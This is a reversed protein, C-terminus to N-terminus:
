RFTWTYDINVRTEHAPKFSAQQAFNNDYLAYRTRLGLGKLTGTQVTYQLEFDWSDEKLDYGGLHPLDINTGKTYRTMFKLGQMLDKFDYDYRVGYVQEKPNLFDTSWGDIYILVEGGSLYPHATDGYNQMLSLTVTHNQHKFGLNATALTNDVKGARAEGNEGSNWLRIDTIIKNDLNLPMNNKFTVATQHYLDQAVAYYLGVQTNASLNYKGGLASLSNTQATKFRGNFAINTMKEYHTSDRHNVKTLYAAVLDLDQIQQSQLMGGLFTQPLLRSPSSFVVPTWPQLTGLKLETKQYKAKATIGLESATNSRERTVPDAPLLGSSLYKPNGELKISSLSLLDVGFGVTGPTYGSQINLIFGQAWDKAGPVAKFDTFDRDLYYNRTTLKVSSDDIFDSAHLHASLTSLALLSLKINKM